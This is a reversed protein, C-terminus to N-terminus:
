VTARLQMAFTFDMRAARMASKEETETETANCCNNNYLYEGLSIISCDEFSTTAFYAVIGSKVKGLKPKAPLKDDNKKAYKRLAAIVLKSDMDISDVFLIVDSYDWESIPAHEDMAEKVLEEAEKRAISPDDKLGLKILIKGLNSNVSSMSAGAKMLDIALQQEDIEDTNLGETWATVNEVMQKKKM